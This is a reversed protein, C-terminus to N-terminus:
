KVRCVRGASAMDPPLRMECTSAVQYKANFAREASALEDLKAFLATSDTTLRCYVVYDRPGGCGKVGVPAAACQGPASCGVTDVLARAGRELSDLAARGAAQDNGPAGEAPPVGLSDRPAEPAPKSTCGAMALTMAALSARVLMRVETTALLGNQELALRQELVLGSAFRSPASAGDGLFPNM